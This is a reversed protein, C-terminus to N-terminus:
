EGILAVIPGATTADGIDHINIDIRETAKMAIQDEVFKIEDSRKVQIGRREGLTAALRLDGFLLMVVDSLDGTSTPMVQSIEVPYGLYSQTIKGALTVTNNGGAAAMLRSFLVDWGVTSVIWKANTRAYQPLKGMLSALDNADIEAFTDHGSAADVAGALGLIKNNIGTIGGYTSTGDGIFGCLDEKYAFAYAMEQAIDDVVSIIADEALESSIYTLAFLKKAVLNVGDWTKNSETGAVGEGIFYATLGSVRRPITKTDSAMAEVKALRRFVGYEERLDIIAQSMEDPVLIGGASNVAENQLRYEVGHRECFRIAKFDGLLAARFAMGSKLANIEANQGRFAKLAGYRHYRSGIELDEKNGKIPDPNPNDRDAKPPKPTRLDAVAALVKKRQEEAAELHAIEAKISEAKALQEDIQRKEDPTPYPNEKRAEIRASMEEASRVTFVLDERLENIPKM